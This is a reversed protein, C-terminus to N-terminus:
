PGATSLQATRSVRAAQRTWAERNMPDFSAAMVSKLQKPVRLSARYRIRIRPTDQLPVVSRAHIAQCQSFLFPQQGGATQSPTLWQLASAEPSTRYRVTLQKVGAPLEIRLRSGLIPEPPSLIYPLPRGQADVVGRIDLDRTDLDLPGASAEKLTLTAEAHLRRTRFDVRAKWDLTETEPQTSDNYSHPDLRAM